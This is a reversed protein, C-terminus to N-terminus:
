PSQAREFIFVAVHSSHLGCFTPCPRRCDPTGYSWNSPSRIRPGEHSSSIPTSRPRRYLRHGSCTLLGTPALPSSLHCPRSRLIHIAPYITAHWPLPRGPGTTGVPEAFEEFAPKVMTTYVHLIADLDRGLAVDRVVRRSLRTDLLWGSFATTLPLLLPRWGGSSRNVSSSRIFPNM